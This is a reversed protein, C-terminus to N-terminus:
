AFLGNLVVLAKFALQQKELCPFYKTTFTYLFYKLYLFHMPIFISINGKRLLKRKDANYLCNTKRIKWIYCKLNKKINEWM